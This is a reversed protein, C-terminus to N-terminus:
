KGEHHCYQIIQSAKKFFLMVHMSEIENGKSNAKIVNGGRILLWMKGGEYGKGMQNKILM